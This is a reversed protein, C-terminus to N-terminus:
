TPAAKLMPRLRVRIGVLQSVLKPLALYEEAERYRAAVQKLLPNKLADPTGPAVNVYTQFGLQLNSYEPDLSMWSYIGATNYGAKSCVTALTEISDPLKDLM